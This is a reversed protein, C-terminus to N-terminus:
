STERLIGNIKKHPPPPCPCFFHGTSPLIHKIIVNTREEVDSLLIFHPLRTVRM